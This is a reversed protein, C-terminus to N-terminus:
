EEKEFSKEEQIVQEADIKAKDLDEHLTDNEVKNNIIISPELIVKYVKLNEIVQKAEVGFQVKEDLIESQVYIEVEDYRKM